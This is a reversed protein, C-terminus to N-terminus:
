CYMHHKKAKLPAKRYAVQRSLAEQALLQHTARTNDAINQRQRLLVVQVTEVGDIQALRIAHKLEAESKVPHSHYGTLLDDPM